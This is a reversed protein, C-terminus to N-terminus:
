ITAICKLEISIPTPLRNVEVATRCPNAEAFYEAYVRNYSEFDREVLNEWKSGADELVRRVNDFVARGGPPAGSIESQREVPTDYRTVSPWRRM